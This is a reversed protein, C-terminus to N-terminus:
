ALARRAAAHNLAGALAELQRAPDCLARARSPGAAGRRGRVGADSVLRQLADILAAPDDPRVLDGCEATVIECAGGMAATVVPLGAYLAEVFALGFPEPRTNPQCLIDAARMLSAVDRREGLFRVRESIRAARAQAKLRDAYEAEGARQPGGAIWIRWPGELRAAAELLQRHGKWEQFRSAILIVVDRGGAGLASRLAIRDSGPLTGGPAVPAYVVPVVPLGSYLRPVSAATFQSNAVVLDPPTLRAWREPWVRGDVPDHLWLVRAASTRGVVAAAVGHMWTSHCIVTDPREAALVRALERRARWLTHPRSIRVPGFRACWAGAADLEETLRGDFCVGFLPEIAPCLASSRACEVVIREVGGYLNGACLHLARLPTPGSVM